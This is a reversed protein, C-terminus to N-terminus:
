SVAARDLQAVDGSIGSMRMQKGGGLREVDAALRCSSEFWRATKRGYPNAARQMRGSQWVTESGARGCQM